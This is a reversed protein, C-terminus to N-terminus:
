GRARNYGAITGMGFFRCIGIDSAALTNATAIIGSGFARAATTPINTTITQTEILSENDANYLSFTVSSGNSPVEIDFLYHTSLSMTTTMTITTRVNASATKCNIQNGILEFYAGNQADASSTTSLYGLRVLRDSFATVPMYVCQLKHSVVGFYDAANLTTLFRYGSNASTSSRILVGHHYKGTIFGSTIGSSQTGSALGIGILYPQVPNNHYFWTEQWNDHMALPSSSGTASIIPNSPDANNVSIGTGAVISQIIGDAGDDGQLSALWETQTGVFGNNVAIQYASLGNIGDIGDIGDTGEL